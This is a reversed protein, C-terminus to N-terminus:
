YLNLKYVKSRKNSTSVVLLYFGKALNGVFISKDAAQKGTIIKSGAISYIEYKFTTNCNSFNIAQEIYSYSPSCNLPNEIEQTNSYLFCTLSDTSVCVNDIFYYSDCLTGNFQISDTNMDDFFNGLYLYEYASDATFTFTLKSWNITDTIISPNYFHANNSPANPISDVFEETSFLGGINNTACALPHNNLAFVTYFSIFYKTGITLPSLLQTGVYERIDIGGYRTALGIYAEGNVPYQHGWINTPVSVNSQGTTMPACSNFYDPSPHASWWDAVRDLQELFNPCAITDEFSPNPVLNVQAFSEKNFSSICVFCLVIHLLCAKM